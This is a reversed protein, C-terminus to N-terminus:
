DGASYDIKVKITATDIDCDKDAVTVKIDLYLNDEYSNM